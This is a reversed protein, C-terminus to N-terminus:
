IKTLEWFGFQNEFLGEGRTPSEKMDILKYRSSDFSPSFTENENLTPEDIIRFFNFMRLLEYASESSEGRVAVDKYGINHMGCSYTLTTNEDYITEVVFLEYLNVKDFKRSRELWQEPSFAQEFDGSKGTLYVVLKHNDIQELFAESLHNIEGSVEFAKKMRIDRECIECGFSEINKLDMLLQDTFIYEELNNLIIAGFFAQETEHIIPICLVIPNKEKM